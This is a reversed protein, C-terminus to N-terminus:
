TDISRFCSRFGWPNYFCLCPFVSPFPIYWSKGANPDTYTAGQQNTVTAGASTAQNHVQSATSTAPPVFIASPQQTGATASGSQSASPNTNGSACFSKYWNQATLMDQPSCQTCFQVPQPQYLQTLLASQCFCSKYTADNTVPAGGAPTCSSQANVLQACNQACQPLSSALLTQAQAQHYFYSSFVLISTSLAFSLKM